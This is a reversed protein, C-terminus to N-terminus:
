DAAAQDALIRKAAEIDILPYTDFIYQSSTRRGLHQSLAFCCSRLRWSQKGGWAAGALACLRFRRIEAFVAFPKESNPPKLTRATRRSRSHEAAYVFDCALAFECGGPLRGWQGRRDPTRCRASRGAASLSKRKQPGKVESASTRKQGLASMMVSHVHLRNCCTQYLYRILFSGM